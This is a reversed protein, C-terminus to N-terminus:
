SEDKRAYFYIQGSTPSPWSHYEYKNDMAWAIFYMDNSYVRDMGKGERSDYREQYTTFVEDPMLTNLFNDRVEYPAEGLSNFGIVTEPKQIDDLSDVLWVDTDGLYYEQIELMEPFDYITYEGDYGWLQMMRALAGYGGGFEVISKSDVLHRGTKRKYELLHTAQIIMTGSSNPVMGSKPMYPPETAIKSLERWEEAKKLYDRATKVQPHGDGTFAASVLAPWEFFKEVGVNELHWRIDAIRHSWTGQTYGELHEAM